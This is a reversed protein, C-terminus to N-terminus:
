QSCGVKLLYAEYNGTKLNHVVVRAPEGNEDSWMAVITGDLELPDSLSRFENGAWEYIAITDLETRDRKSTSLIQWGTGCVTRVTALESGWASTTALTNGNKGSVLRTEGKIGTSIWAPEGAPELAAISFFPERNVKAADSTVAAAWQFWNGSPALFAFTMQGSGSFTWSGNVPACKAAAVHAVSGSCEIGEVRADFDTGSIEIRGRVDRPWANEHSIAARPFNQESDMLVVGDTYLVLVKRCEKVVPPNTCAFDLIQSNGSFVLERDVHTRSAWPKADFNSREFPEMLAVHAGDNDFDAIWLREANDMSLTIRLKVDFSTDAVTRLGRTRLESEIERKADDLDSARMEGKLDVVEVFVKEKHDIQAAIKQALERAAKTSAEDAWCRGAMLISISFILFSALAIHPTRAWIESLTWSKM